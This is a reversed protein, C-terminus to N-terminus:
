PKQYHCVDESPSQWGHKKISGVERAWSSQGWFSCCVQAPGQTKLRPGSFGTCTLHSCSHILLSQLQWCGHKRDQPLPRNAPVVGTGTVGSSCSKGLHTEDVKREATHLAGSNRNAEPLELQTQKVQFWCLGSYNLFPVLFPSSFTLLDLHLFAHSSASPPAM